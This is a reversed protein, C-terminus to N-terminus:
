ASILIDKCSHSDVQVVTKTAHIMDELVGTLWPSLAFVEMLSELIIDAIEILKFAPMDNPITLFFDLENFVLKLAKENEESCNNIIQQFLKDIFDALKAEDLVEKVFVFDSSEGALLQEFSREVKKTFVIWKESFLAKDMVM